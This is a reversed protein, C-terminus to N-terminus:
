IVICTTCGCVHPLVEYVETCTPIVKCRMCGRVLGYMPTCTPMAKCQWVHLAGVCRATCLPVRLTYHAISGGKGRHVGKYWVDGRIWM